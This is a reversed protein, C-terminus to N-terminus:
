VHTREGFIFGVAAGRKRLVSHNQALQTDGMGDKNELYQAADASGPEMTPNLGFPQFHLEIPIDTGINKM